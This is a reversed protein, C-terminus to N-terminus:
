ETRRFLGAVDIAPGPPANAQHFQAGHLAARSDAEEIRAGALRARARTAPRSAVVPASGSRRLDTRMGMCRQAPVEPPHTSRPPPDHEAAHPVCAGRQGATGACRETQPRRLDHSARLSAVAIAPRCAVALGPGVAVLALAWAAGLRWVNRFTARM